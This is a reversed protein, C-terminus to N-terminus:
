RQMEKADWPMRYLSSYNWELGKGSVRFNVGVWITDAPAEDLRVHLLDNISEGSEIWRERQLVSVVTLLVQSMDPRIAFIECLSGQKQLVHRAAGLNKLEIAAELYLGDKEFVSGTVRLELREAYTRSRHYHMWTWAAGVAVALAKIIKDAVDLWFRAQLHPDAPSLPDVM